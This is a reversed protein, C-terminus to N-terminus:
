SINGYETLDYSNEEAEETIYKIELELFYYSEM